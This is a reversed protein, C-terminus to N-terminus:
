HQQARKCTCGKGSQLCCPDWAGSEGADASYEALWPSLRALDRRGEYLAAKGLRESVARTHRSLSAADLKVGDAGFAEGLAKEAVPAALANYTQAPPNRRQKEGRAVKHRSVLDPWM